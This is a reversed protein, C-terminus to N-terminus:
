QMVIASAQRTVSASARCFIFPILIGIISGCPWGAAMYAMAAWESYPVYSQLVASPCELDSYNYVLAARCALAGKWSWGHTVMVVAKSRKCAALPNNRELVMRHTVM